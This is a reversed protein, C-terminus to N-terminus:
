WMRDALELEKAGVATAYIATTALSVHSMWKQRINLLFGSRVAHIGYGYRRM